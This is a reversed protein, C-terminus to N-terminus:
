LGRRLRGQTSIDAFVSFLISMVTFGVGVEVGLIALSRVEAVALPLIAQLVGYDLFNGGLLLCLLGISAYVTVGFVALLRHLLPSLQLLATHMNYALSMLIFAAALIVGGQFGGGPSHHGHAIVYLAFLLVIPFLIRCAMVLHVDRRVPLISRSARRKGSGSGGPGSAGSESKGPDRGLVGAGRLMLMIGIGACFIVVTELMTDYGRYDALVATVINPVAMDEEAHTIYYSSVAGNAPANPDGLHPFDASAYLLAAGVLAVVIFGFVKL